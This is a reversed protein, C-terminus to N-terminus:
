HGFSRSYSQSSCSLTDPFGSYRIAFLRSYCITFLGSYHSYDRITRITAFLRSFHRISWCYDGNPAFIHESIQGRVDDTGLLSCNESRAYSSSFQSSWPVSFTWSLYGLMSERWISAITNIIRWINKAVRTTKFIPSYQRINGLKLQPINPWM